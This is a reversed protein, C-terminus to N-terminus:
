SKGLCNKTKMFRFFFVKSFMTPFPSISTVLVEKEWHKRFAEKKPDNFTLITHYLTLCGLFIPSSFINHSFSFISSQEADNEGKRVINVVREFIFEKMRARELNYDTFVKLEEGFYFKLVLGFEFCKCVVFYIYNLSLFEKESPYVVNHSLSIVLM